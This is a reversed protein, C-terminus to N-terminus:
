MKPKAKHTMAKKHMKHTMHMKHHMMHGRSGGGEMCQDTVTASCIPVDAPADAPPAAMPAAAQLTAALFLTIM